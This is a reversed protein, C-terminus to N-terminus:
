RMILRRVSISLKGVLWTPKYALPYHVPVLTESHNKESKNDKAGCSLIHEIVNDKKADGPLRNHHSKQDSHRTITKPVIM